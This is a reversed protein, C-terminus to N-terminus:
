PGTCGVFDHRSIAVTGVSYFVSCEIWSNSTRRPTTGQASAIEEDVNASALPEWPVIVFGWWSPINLPAGSSAPGTLLTM